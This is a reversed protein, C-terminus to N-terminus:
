AKLGFVPAMSNLFPTRKSRPLQFIEALPLRIRFAMASLWFLLTRFTTPWASLFGMERADVFAASSVSVLMSSLQRRAMATMPSSRLFPTRSVWITETSPWPVSGVELWPMARQTSIKMTFPALTEGVLEVESDGVYPNVTVTLPGVNTRWTADVGRIQYVSSLNYVEVPPRVWVNAYGVFVSDSYMFTPARLYGGRFSLGQMAQARVYAWDLRPEWESALNAYAVGQVTASVVDNFKATVQVGLKSDTEFTGNSDIGEPQGSYGVQADDTDTQAYGATSFGSYTFDVAPALSPLAAAVALAILSFRSRM